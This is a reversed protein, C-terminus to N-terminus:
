IGWVISHKRQPRRSHSGSCSWVRGMMIRTWSAKNKPWGYCVRRTEELGSMPTKSLRRLYAMIWASKCAWMPAICVQIRFLCAKFFFPNRGFPLPHFNHWNKEWDDRHCLSQSSLCVSWWLPSYIMGACSFLTRECHVCDFTTGVILSM